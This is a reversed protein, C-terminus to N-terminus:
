IRWPGRETPVEEASDCDVRREGERLAQGDSSPLDIPGDDPRADPYMSYLLRLDETGDEFRPVTIPDPFAVSRREQAQEAAPVPERQATATHATPRNAPPRESDFWRRSPDRNQELQQVLAAHNEDSLFAMQLAIPDADSPALVARGRTRIATPDLLPSAPVYDSGLTGTMGGFNVHFALRDSMNDRLSTPLSSEKPRQTMMILCYGAGLGQQNLTELEEICQMALARREKTSDKFLESCEDIVLLKFPETPGLWRSTLANKVGDRAMRQYRASMDEITQTIFALARMTGADGDSNEVVADLAGGWAAAETGRKLDLYAVRVDPHRLLHAMLGTSFSSKGWRSMGGIAFNRDTLNLRYEDGTAVNAAMPLDTIYDVVHRGKPDVPSWELTFGDPLVSESFIATVRAVHPAPETVVVRPVGWASAIRGAAKQFDEVTQRGPIVSADFFVRGREDEGIRQVEPYIDLGDPRKWTLGARGFMTRRVGARAQDEPSPGESEARQAARAQKVSAPEWCSLLYWTGASVLAILLLALATLNRGPDTLAAVFSVFFGGAGVLALWYPHHWLTYRVAERGETTYTRGWWMFGATGAAVLAAVTGNRSMLVLGYVVVAVAVTGWLRLDRKVLSETVQEGLNLAETRNRLNERLVKAHKQASDAGVKMSDAKQESRLGAARGMYATYKGAADRAKSDAREVERTMADLSRPKENWFSM